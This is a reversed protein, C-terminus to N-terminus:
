SKILPFLFALRNWRAIECGNRRQFRTWIRTGHYTGAVLAVEPGGYIQTCATDPPIPAFPKELAALRRCARAPRALTGTAPDCRLTRQTSPGPKGQPWVTIRLSTSDSGALQHWTSFWTGSWAGLPLLASAALAALLAM